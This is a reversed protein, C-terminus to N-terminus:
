PKKMCITFGGDKEINIGAMRSYGSYSIETGIPNIYVLTSTKTPDMFLGAIAMLNLESSADIWVWLNDGSSDISARGQVATGDLLRIRAKSTDPLAWSPIGETEIDYVPPQEEESESDSAPEDDVSSDTTPELSPDDIVVVTSEIEDEKNEEQDDIIEVIENGNEDIRTKTQAM